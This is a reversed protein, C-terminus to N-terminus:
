IHNSSVYRSTTGSTNNNNKLGMSYTDKNPFFPTANSKKPPVVFRKNDEDGDEDISSSLEDLDIEEEDSNNHRVQRHAM